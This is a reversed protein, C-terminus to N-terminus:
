GQDAEKLANRAATLGFYVTSSIGSGTGPYYPGTFGGANMGGAYLHPIVEGDVNVVQAQTNIKLGGMSGLNYEIAKVAYYPGTKLSRLGHAQNFQSDKGTSDMDANWTDITKQLNDANVGIADALARVTGRTIVKGAEIEKKLDDSMGSIGSVFAGGLKMTEADWIQWAIHSEQNFVSRMVYAYHNDEAVFRLGYKNVMIGPVEPNGILTPTMGVNTPPLGIFGGMSALDAGIDMGMRIGDGTNTPAAYSVGTELAWLLHPNFDRAMEQNHDYGGAALIVAKKAKIFVSKGNATAKVGVVGKAGDVILQSVPTDVMFTVGAAVAANYLTEIHYKGGGSTGDPGGGPVHIRDARLSPDMDPIAAAGYMAIYPIKHAVLWDVCAPCGDALAKVLAEDAVGEAAAKWYEYHKAVTDDKYTTLEKQFSTGAAQILATSVLTNGGVSSAKELVIVSAKNEAAEVAAVIGTGGGGVVVVDAEDDWSKPLSSSQDGTRPACANLMSVAVAAAGMASTKKMFARRSVLKPERVPQTM